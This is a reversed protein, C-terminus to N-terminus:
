FPEPVDDGCQDASCNLISAVAAAHEIVASKKIKVVDLIGKTVLSIRRTVDVMKNMSPLGLKDRVGSEAHQLSWEVCRCASAKKLTSSSKRSTAIGDLVMASGSM